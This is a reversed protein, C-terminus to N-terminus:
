GRTRASASSTAAATPRATCTSPRRSCCTSARAAASSPWCGASGSSGRRTGPRPWRPRPPCTPRRTASTGAPRRARGAPGDSTVIAPAARDAPEAHLSWFDAGTLLRVKQELSLAALREHLTRWSGDTHSPRHPRQQEVHEPRADVPARRHHALRSRKPSGGSARRPRARRTGAAAPSRACRRAATPSGRRAAGSRARCRARRVRASARRLRVAGLEDRPQCRRSGQGSTTSPRVLSLSVWMM